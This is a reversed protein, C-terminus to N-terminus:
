FKPVSRIPVSNRPFGIGIGSRTITAAYGKVEQRRQAPCPVVRTRCGAEEGTRPLPIRHSIGRPPWRTRGRTRTSLRFYAISAARRSGGTCMGHSTQPCPPSEALPYHLAACWRARARAYWLLAIAQVPSLYCRAPSNAVWRGVRAAQAGTPSRARRSPPCRPAAVLQAATRAACCHARHARHASM